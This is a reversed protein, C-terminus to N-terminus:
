LAGLVPRLRSACPALGPPFGPRFLLAPVTRRAGPLTSGSEAALPAAGSLRFARCDASDISIAFTAMSAASSL